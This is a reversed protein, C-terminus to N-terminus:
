EAEVVEKPESVKQETPVREPEEGEKGATPVKEVQDQRPTSPPESEEQEAERSEQPAVLAMQPEAFLHYKSASVEKQDSVKQETQDREQDEGEKGEVPVEEVQDHRPISPPELEEQEAEWRQEEEPVPVEEAEQEPTVKWFVVAQVKVKEPCIHGERGVTRVPEISEEPAKREVEQM